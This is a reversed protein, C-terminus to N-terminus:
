SWQSAVQDSSFSMLDFHRHRTAPGTATSRDNPTEVHLYEGTSSIVDNERIYMIISRSTLTYYIGPNWTCDEFSKKSMKKCTSWPTIQLVIISQSLKAATASFSSSPCIGVVFCATYTLCLDEM